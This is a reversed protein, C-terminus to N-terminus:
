RMDHIFFLILMVCKINKWLTVSSTEQKCPLIFNSSIRSQKVEPINMPTMSVCERDVHFFALTETPDISHLKCFGDSVM